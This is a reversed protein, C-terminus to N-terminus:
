LLATRLVTLVHVDRKVMRYINLSKYDIWQEAVCMAAVLMSNMSPKTYLRRYQLGVYVPYSKRLLKEYFDTHFNMSNKLHSVREYM